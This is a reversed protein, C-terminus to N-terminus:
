GGSGWSSHTRSPRRQNGRVVELQLQRQQLALQAVEAYPLVGNTGDGGATLALGQPGVAAESRLAGLRTTTAGAVLTAVTPAAMPSTVRRRTGGGDYEPPRDAELEALQRKLLTEVDEDESDLGMSHDHPPASLPIGPRQQSAFSQRGVAPVRAGTMQEDGEKKEAVSGMEVTKARRRRRM